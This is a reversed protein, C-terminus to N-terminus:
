GSEDPIDVLSPYAWWWRSGQLLAACAQQYTQGAVRTVDHAGGSATLLRSNASVIVADAREAMFYADSVEM